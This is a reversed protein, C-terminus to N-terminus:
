LCSDLAWDTETRSAQRIYPLLYSAALDIKINLRPCKLEQEIFALAMLEPVRANSRLLCSCVWGPNEIQWILLHLIPMCIEVAAHKTFSNLSQNGVSVWVRWTRISGGTKSRTTSISSTEPRYQNLISLTASCTSMYGKRKRNLIGDISSGRQLRMSLIDRASVRRQNSLVCMLCPMPCKRDSFSPSAAFATM